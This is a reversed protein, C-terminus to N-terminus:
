SMRGKDAVSVVAYSPNAIQFPNLQEDAHNGGMVAHPFQPTM